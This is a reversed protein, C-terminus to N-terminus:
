WRSPKPALSQWTIHIGVKENRMNFLSLTAHCSSSAFFSYISGACRSSSTVYCAINCDRMWLSLFSINPGDFLQLSWPFFHVFFLRRLRSPSFSLSISVSHPTSLPFPWFLAYKGTLPFGSEWYEQSETKDCVLCCRDSTGCAGIFFPLRLVGLSVSRSLSHILRLLLAFAKQFAWINSAIIPSM